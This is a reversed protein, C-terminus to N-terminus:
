ASKEEQQRGDEKGLKIDKIVAGMKCTGNFIAGGEVIMKGTIIDGNIVASPRLILIEQVEVTGKVEGSIDANQALLNGVVEASEGLSVKSKTKIDGDVKGEIRVNGFSEINGSITTGKGIINSSNSMEEIM